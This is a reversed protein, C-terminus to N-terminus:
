KERVGGHLQSMLQTLKVSFTRDNRNMATYVERPRHGIFMIYGDYLCSICISDLHCLVICINYVPVTFLIYFMNQVSAARPAENPCSKNKLWTIILQRQLQKAEADFCTQYQEPNSNYNTRSM